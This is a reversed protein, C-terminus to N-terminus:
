PHITEMWNDVEELDKAGNMKALIYSDWNLKMIYRKYEDRIQYVTYEKLINKDKQLGVSLVSMYQDYVTHEETEGRKEARKQQGKKIKEAIRAALADEPNFQGEDAGLCFMQNLIEKFDDYNRENISSSFNELQLLIKDKEIKIKHEPFLLALVMLADTKYRALSRSNMVSMFIDFDSQDELGIKDEDSLNNRNFILFHSGKHFNEEGIYGIEKLRPQHITVRATTFPIDEGSQLLLGDLKM